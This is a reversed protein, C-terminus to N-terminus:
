IGEEVLDPAESSGEGEPLFATLAELKKLFAKLEKASNTGGTIALGKSSLSFELPQDRYIPQGRNEM